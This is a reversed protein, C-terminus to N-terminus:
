SLDTYAFGVQPYCAPVCLPNMHNGHDSLVIIITDNLHDKMRRGLFDALTDDMWSIVEGTGEHGDM